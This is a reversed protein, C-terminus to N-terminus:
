LVREDEVFAVNNKVKVKMELIQEIPYKVRLKDFLKILDKFKVQDM